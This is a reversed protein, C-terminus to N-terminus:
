GTQTPQSSVNVARRRLASYQEDAQRCRAYRPRTDRRHAVRVWLCRKRLGARRVSGPGGDRTRARDIEAVRKARQTDERRQELTEM